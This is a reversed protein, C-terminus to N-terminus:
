LAAVSARVACVYMGSPVLVATDAAVSTTVAPTPTTGSAGAAATEVAVSASRACVCTGNWDDVPCLEADSVTEVGVCVNM